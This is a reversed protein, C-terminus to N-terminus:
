RRNIDYIHKLVNHDTPDLSSIDKEIVTIAKVASLAEGLYEELCPGVTKSPTKERVV